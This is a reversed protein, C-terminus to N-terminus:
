GSCFEFLRVKDRDKKAKNKERKERRLQMKKSWQEMRSPLIRKIVDQGEVDLQIIVDPLLQNEVLYVAEDENSPFGELVFGRSRFPEENWWSKIIKDLLENAM